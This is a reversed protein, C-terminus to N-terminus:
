QNNNEEIDVRERIVLMGRELEPFKAKLLLQMAQAEEYSRYEGVRLRWFPSVYSVNTPLDPFSNRVKQAFKEAQQKANANNSSFLQIHYIPTKISSHLVREGGARAVRQALAEPQVIHVEGGVNRELYQVISTDPLVADMLSFDQASANNGVAAVSLILMTLVYKMMKEMTAKNTVYSLTQM